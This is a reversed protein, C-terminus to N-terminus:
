TAVIRKLKNQLGSLPAGKDYAKKAHARALEYDGIDVLLLGMNYHFEASDAGVAQADDYAVLARELEGKQPLYIGLIYFLM